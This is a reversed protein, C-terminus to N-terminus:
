LCGEVYEVSPELGGRINTIRGDLAELVIARREDSSKFILYHGTPEYKHPRLQAAPFRRQVETFQDGMKVGLSNSVGDSVIDARTIIGNEVMFKIHPYADLTIYYCETEGTNKGPNERLKRKVEVLNVGFTVIGYSKDSLIPGKSCGPFVLCIMVLSLMVFSIAKM